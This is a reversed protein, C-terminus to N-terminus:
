QAEPGKFEYITRTPWVQLGVQPLAQVDKPEDGMLRYTKGDIRIMSTLSHKAKVTWHRTADDTLRDACSWISFYPDCTVLPVAPPRMPQADNQRGAAQAALAVLIPIAILLKRLSMM